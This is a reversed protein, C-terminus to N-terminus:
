AVTALAAVSTQAEVPNHAPATAAKWHHRAIFREDIKRRWRDSSVDDFDQKGGEEEWWHRAAREGMDRLMDLFAWATNSKSAIGLSGMGNEDEIFHLRVPRKGQLSAIARVQRKVDSSLGDIGQLLDNMM